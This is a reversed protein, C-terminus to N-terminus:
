KAYSMRVLAARITEAQREIVWPEIIREAECKMNARTNEDTTLDKMAMSLVSANGAPFLLGNRRPEVLDDACGCADSVIVPLGCIMAENVVLGWPEHESPLVLFDSARMWAVVSQQKQRGLFRVRGPYRDAFEEVRSRLPGDGIVVLELNDCEAVVSEFAELLVDIGKHGILRGVFLMLVRDTSIGAQARVQERVPTRLGRLRQADVTMHSISIKEEPVGYYRFLNAQRTGGPIVVEAWNLLIPYVQRKVWERWGTLDRNLPTDSELSFPVGRSKCSIIALRVVWHGWGALHAVTYRGRLIDAILRAVRGLQKLKSVRTDLLVPFDGVQADEGWDQSSNVFTWILDTHLEPDRYVYLARPLIYPTPELQLLLCRTGPAAVPRQLQTTSV